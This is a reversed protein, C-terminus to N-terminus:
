TTLFFEVLELPVFRTIELDKAKPGKAVTGRNEQAIIMLNPLLLTPNTALIGVTVTNPHNHIGIYEGKKTVQVFTGEFIPAKGLMTYETKQLARGLKGPLPADGSFTQKKVSNNWLDKKQVKGPATIM